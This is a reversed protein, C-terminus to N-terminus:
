SPTDVGAKMFQLRRSSAHTRNPDPRFVVEEAMPKKSIAVSRTATTATLYENQWLKGLSKEHLSKVFFSMRGGGGGGAADPQLRQLPLALFSILTVRRSKGVNLSQL